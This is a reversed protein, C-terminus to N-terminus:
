TCSRVPVYLKDGNAYELHLFETEGEGLDMHVLGIYRGIGHSSTCWRTASRSNPSTACGTTSHHPTAASARRARRPRHRRLARDRHRLRHRAPDARLRGFLPASASRSRPTAPRAFAAFDASALEPKLGYEALIEAANRPPRRNPSCCCAAPSARSIAKLTCRTTPAATSPSRRAARRRARGRRGSERALV